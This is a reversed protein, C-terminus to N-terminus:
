RTLMENDCNLLMNYSNPYGIIVSREVDLNKHCYVVMNQLM